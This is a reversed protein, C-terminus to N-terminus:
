DTSKYKLYMCKNHLEGVIYSVYGIYPTWPKSSECSVKPTRIRYSEYCSTPTWPYPSEYLNCPTWVPIHNVVGSLVVYNKLNVWCHMITNLWAVPQFQLRREPNWYFKSEYKYLPTWPFASEYYFLPTWRGCLEYVTLPTWSTHSEYFYYPTWVTKSKAAITISNSTRWQSM